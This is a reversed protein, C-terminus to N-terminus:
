LREYAVGVVQKLVLTNPTQPAAIRRSPQEGPGLTMTARVLCLMLPVKFDQLHVQVSVRIAIQVLYITKLYHPIWTATTMIKHLILGYRKKAPVLLLTHCIAHGHLLCLGSNSWQTCIM